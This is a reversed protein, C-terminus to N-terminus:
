QINLTIWNKGVEYCMVRVFLSFDIFVDFVFLIDRTNNCQWVALHRLFVFSYELLRSDFPIRPRM